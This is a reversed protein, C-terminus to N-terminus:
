LLRVSGSYLASEVPTFKAGCMCDVLATGEPVVNMTECSPCMLEFYEPFKSM